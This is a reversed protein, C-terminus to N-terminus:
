WQISLVRCVTHVQNIHEGSQYTRWFLPKCNHTHIHYGRGSWIVTPKYGALNDKFRWITQRMIHALTDYDDDFNRADLDITIFYPAIAYSM